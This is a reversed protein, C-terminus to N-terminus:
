ANKESTVTRAREVDVEYEKIKNRLTTHNMGLYDATDQIKGQHRELAEIIFQKEVAKTYSRIDLKTNGMELIMNALKLRQMFLKIGVSLYVVRDRHLYYFAIAAYITVTPGVVIVPVAYETRSLLVLTLYALILPIFSVLAIINKSAVVKDDFNDKVNRWLTAITAICAILIFLDFAWAMVGDNHLIAYGEIRYGDVMLGAFHFLTLSGPVTYLWYRYRSREQKWSLCTAFLIYHTFLFYLLILYADAFYERGVSMYPWFLYGASQVANLLALNAFLLIFDIPSRRDVLRKLLYLCSVASVFPLSSYLWNDAM